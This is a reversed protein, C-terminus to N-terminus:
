NLLDSGRRARIMERTEELELEIVEIRSALRVREVPTTADVTAAFGEPDLLYLLNELHDAVFDLEIAVDRYRRQAGKRRAAKAGAVVQEFADHLLDRTPHPSDLLDEFPPRHARFMELAKREVAREDMDLWQPHLAWICSALHHGACDIQELFVLYDDGPVDVDLLTEYLHAVYATAAIVHSVVDTPSPKRPM